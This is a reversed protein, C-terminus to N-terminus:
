PQISEIHNFGTTSCKHQDKRGTQRRGKKGGERKEEKGEEKGGERRVKFINSIRQDGSHILELKGFYGAPFCM